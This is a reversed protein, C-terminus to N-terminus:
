LFFDQFPCHTMRREHRKRKERNAMNHKPQQDKLGNRRIHNDPFPKTGLLSGVFSGGGM